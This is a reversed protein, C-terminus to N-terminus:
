RDPGPLSHRLRCRPRIGRPHSAGGFLDAVKNGPDKLVPFPLNHKKAHAAVRELTDQRNSNIALFQVGKGSYEKHLDALQALCLNNIPCETGVFIVAIAKKDKFDALSVTARDLPATLTFNAIKKGLNASPTDALSLLAVSLVALSGGLIRFSQKM